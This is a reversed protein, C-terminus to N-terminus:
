TRLYRGRICDRGSTARRNGPRRRFRCVPTVVGRTWGFQSVDALVGTADPVDVYVRTGDAVRHREATRPDLRGAGDVRVRVHQPPRYTVAGDVRM